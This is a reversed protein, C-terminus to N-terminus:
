KEKPSLLHKLQFFIEVARSIVGASSVRVAVALLLLYIGADAFVNMLKGGAAVQISQDPNDNITIM